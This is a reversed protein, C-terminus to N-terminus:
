RWWSLRTPRSQPPRQRFRRHLRVLQRGRDRGDILRIAADVEEAGVAKFLRYLDPRLGGVEVLDPGPSLSLITAVSSSTILIASGLSVESLALTVM